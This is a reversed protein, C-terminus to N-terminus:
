RSPSPRDANRAAAAEPLRAWELVRRVGEEVPVKPSWGLAREAKRIDSIFVRQDGPRWAAYRVRVARGLLQQLLGGFELWISVSRDRGGGINYVEGCGASPVTVAADYADLLDDIFLVDRGQKGDGFITIPRDELAALILWALWGQDETGSQYPGFVCSQRLVVTRLGYVRHYDRAYQDGAGKSCGYPSHFDLPQAESIGHPLDAFAYRSPEETIGLNELNGYVKNTSAYLFIADPARHRAAELANLTGLANAEFDLRPDAVSRTVAVQGALHYIAHAGQTVDALAAYDRVDGSVIHLRERGHRAELRGLRERGGARAFNDFVTVADGRGLLRDALASGIFGAGGTILAGARNV